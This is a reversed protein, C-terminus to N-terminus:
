GCWGYDLEPELAWGFAKQGYHVKIWKETKAEKYKSKALVDEGTIYDTTYAKKGDWAYTFGEGGYHIITVQKGNDIASGYQNIRVYFETKEKDIFNKSTLTTVLASTVDPYKFVKIDKLIKNSALIGCCEGECGRTIVPLKPLEQVYNFDVVPIFM